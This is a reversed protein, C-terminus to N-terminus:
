VSRCLYRLLSVADQYMTQNKDLIGLRLKKIATSDIYEHSIGLRDSLMYTIIIMDALLEKREYLDPEQALLNSFLDAINTLMQNKLMEILRINKTIEFDQVTGM